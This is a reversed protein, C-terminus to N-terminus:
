AHVKKRHEPSAAAVGTLFSKLNFNVHGNPCVNADEETETRKKGRRLYENEGILSMSPHRSGLRELDSCAESVVFSKQACCWM